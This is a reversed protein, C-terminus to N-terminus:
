AFHKKLATLVHPWASEFYALYEDWETSGSKIGYHTLSIKSHADDTKEFQLVVWTCPGDARLTPITPPANWSFSLMSMPAYSLIKCEESGRSGQPVDMSFYIEFNGGVSLEIKSNEVLWAQIGDDTTWAYWLKDLSTNITASLEIKRDAQEHKM